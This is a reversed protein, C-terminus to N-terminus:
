ELKYDFLDQIEDDSMETFLKLDTSVMENLLNEKKQKLLFIKEEITGKTIFKFVQVVDKQGIRHVRDTAQNEVAPNWWPDTHIVTNAGTLNLGVGGAKLSILIVKVDGTNFENVIELRTKAAMQGDVYMVEHKKVIEGQLYKLMKTFQSFIVVKNNNEISEDLTELIAEVKPTMGDYDDIFLGPYISIQRLRVLDSLISIKNKSMENLKNYESVKNMYKDSYEKYLKKQASNMDCYIPTEIKDPLESLVEKKLRRLMFPKIHRKLLEVNKENSIYKKEFSKQTLLFGPMINAFISWLDILNNEIPTGTLAFKNDAKIQGIAKTTKANPNKIFQAEDMILYDFTKQEYIDLDNRISQYSVIKIVSDDKLLESRREKSGEIVSCKFDNGFKKFEESWNYLLSKPAVILVSKPKNYNIFTIAQITKGLGMDDSLIGGFKFDKLQQMWRIGAKQYDRLVAHTNAIEISEYDNKKDMYEVLIKSIDINKFLRESENKLFFLHYLPVLGESNRVQDLVYSILRVREELDSNIQIIKNRKTIYYGELQNIAEMLDEIDEEFIYKFNFDFKFMGTADEIEKLSVQYDDLNIPKFIDDYKMNSNIIVDEREKLLPITIKFLEYIEKYDSTLFYGNVEETTAIYKLKNGKFYSIIKKEATIDRNVVGIKSSVKENDATYEIGSYSFLPFIKVENKEKEIRINCVLPVDVIEQDFVKSYSVHFIKSIIKKINLVFFDFYEGSIEIIDVEGLLLPKFIKIAKKELSNLLYLNNAVLLIDDLGLYDIDIMKDLKVVIKQNEIEVSIGIESIPLKRKFYESYNVEVIEEEEYIELIKRLEGNNIEIESVKINLNKKKDSINDYLIDLLKQSKLNFKYTNEQVSFSKNVKFTEGDYSKQFFEVPEKIIYERQGENSVVVEVNIIDDIKNIYIKPRINLVQYDVQNDEVLGLVQKEIKENLFNKEKNQINKEEHIYHLTSIIHNCMKIKRYMECECTSEYYDDTDAEVMYEDGNDVVYTKYLEASKPHIYGVASKELIDSKRHAKIEYELIYRALEEHTMGM